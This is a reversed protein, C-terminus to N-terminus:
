MAPQNGPEYGDLGDTQRQKYAGAGCLIGFRRLSLALLAARASADRM